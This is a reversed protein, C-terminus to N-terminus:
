FYFWVHLLFAARLFLTLSSVFPYFSLSRQSVLRDQRSMGSAELYLGDLDPLDVSDARSSRVHRTPVFCLVFYVVESRM